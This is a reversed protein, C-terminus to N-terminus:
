FPFNRITHTLTVTVNVVSKLTDTQYRNSLDKSVAEKIVKTTTNDDSTIKLTKELLKYLLPRVNSITPFKVKSMIQFPELIKILDDIISWEEEEPMLYQAKREILVAIIAAQQESVCQLMLLMSGWRTPCGQILKHEEFQLM